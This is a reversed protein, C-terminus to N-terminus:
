VCMCVCVYVCLCVCVNGVLLGVANSILVWDSDSGCVPQIILNSCM